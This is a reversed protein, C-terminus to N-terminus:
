KQKGRCVACFAYYEFGDHGVRADHGTLERHYAAFAKSEEMTQRPEVELSKFAKSYTIPNSAM